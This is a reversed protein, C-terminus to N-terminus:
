EVDETTYVVTESPEHSEVASPNDDQQTEKADQM